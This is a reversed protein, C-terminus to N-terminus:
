PLNLPIFRFDVPAQNKVIRIATTANDADALVENTGDTTSGNPEKEPSETATPSEIKGAVARIAASETATFGDTSLTFTFFSAM